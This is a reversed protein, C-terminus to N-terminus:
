RNFSYGLSLQFADATLAHARINYSAFLRHNLIPFYYRLGVTQYFPLDVDGAYHPERKLYVGLGLHVGFSKYRAEHHLVVSAGHDSQVKGKGTGNLSEWYFIDKGTPSYLFELGIGSAYKPSYSYMFAADIAANYHKPFYGTRFRPDDPTTYYWTHQWECLYAFPLLSGTVDFYFYKRYKLQDHRRTHYWEFPRSSITDRRITYVARLGIEVLNVGINPEETRGNSYHHIGGELGVTWRSSLRCDLYFGLGAMINYRSGIMENEPNKKKDYPNTSIGVGQEIRYGFEVRRSRLLARNVSFYPTVMQGMSSSKDFFPSEWPNPSISSNRHLPVQSFDSVLLGVEVRPLGYMVDDDSASIADAKWSWGIRSISSLRKGTLLNSVVDNHPVVYGGNVGIVFGSIGRSSRPEHTLSDLEAAPMIAVGVAFLSLIFLSRIIFLHRALPM